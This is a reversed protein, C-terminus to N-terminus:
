RQLTLQRVECLLRRLYFSPVRAKWSGEPAKGFNAWADASMTTLKNLVGNIWSKNKAAADPPTLNFHYYVLPRNALATSSTANRARALPLAIIRLSPM